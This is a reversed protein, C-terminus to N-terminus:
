KISEKKGKRMLVVEEKRRGHLFLVSFCRTRRKEWEFCTKGRKGSWVCRRM